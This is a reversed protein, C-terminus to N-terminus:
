EEKNGYVKLCVNCQYGTETWEWDMGDSSIYGEGDGIDVNSTRSDARYEIAVPETTGPSNIEIIVAFREGADVTVSQDWPVTYYGANAVNGGALLIPEETLTVAGSQEASRGGAGIIWGGAADGSAGALAGYIRYETEPATAYFGAAALEMDAEAEYVNAFWAESVGYGMQGTWGCLDTQYLFDYNDTKEVGTYVVCNTGIWTDEYSVYFVGGDGFGNGWTNMCLFAGDQEPRDVFNEKSYGDDWGIIVVDHNPELVGDYCFAYTDENYYRSREAGAEQPIYFSSQVGGSNYVFQKIASYDKDGLIQIEQVHCVPELGDPSFGDGYPDDSEAVPGQWALLYASSIAHDGGDDQSLGFSNRISMHDASLTLASQQGAAGSVSQQADVGSMSRAALVSEPMSTELSKLAAFAWCTGFTGQDPVEIVTGSDRLDYAAPLALIDGYGVSGDGSVTSGGEADALGWAGNESIVAGSSGDPGNEGTEGTNGLLSRVGVGVALGVAGLVAVGGAAM